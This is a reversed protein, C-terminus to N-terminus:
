YWTRSVERVSEMGDYENIEWNVDDPIEVIRVKALEGSAKVGLTEIVQILVPDNRFKDDVHHSNFHGYGLIEDTIGLWEAEGSIERGLLVAETSIGFGGYCKNIAIKM